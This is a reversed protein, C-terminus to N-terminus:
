PEMREPLLVGEVASGFVSESGDRRPIFNRV